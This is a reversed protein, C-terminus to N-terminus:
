KRGRRWGTPIDADKHIGKITEGDTIWIQDVRRERMKKKTEESHTRGKFTDRRFLGHKYRENAIQSGKLAGAVIKDRHVEFHEKCIEKTKFPTIAKNKEDTYNLKKANIYGFGGNGGVSLNYTDSRKCFSETVLEAEKDNMEQEYEFIYLIERIFNEVGYKDIARKLYKGSGMYGDNINETQHKGIYIKKDILNTTKYILFKM